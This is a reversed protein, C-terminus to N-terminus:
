CVHAQLTEALTDFKEKVSVNRGWFLCIKRISGTTRNILGATVSVLKTLM